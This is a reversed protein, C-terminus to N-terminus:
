ADVGRERWGAMWAHYKGVLVWARMWGQLEVRCECGRLHNRSLWAETRVQVVLLITEEGGVGM